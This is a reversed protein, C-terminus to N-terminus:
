VRKGLRWGAGVAGGEGVSVDDERHVDGLVQRLVTEERLVLPAGDAHLLRAPPHVVGDVARLRM